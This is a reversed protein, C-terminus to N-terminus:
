AAPAALRAVPRRGAPLRVPVDRLGALVALYEERRVLVAGLSALHETDQQVDVVRGGAATFRECLEVLAVKSADTSRHFMSEGCFVAGVLVGYLGGVLADGNWVEVSHAVGARHLAGYGERMRGTIWTGDERDACLRVVDDFAADVTATWGSRRLRQRLSRSVRLAGPLLVARPDPSCWPVLGDSGPLLPVEGRRLLRRASRELAQEYRGTAPWPFVGHRYASLLTPPDLTGGLAVLERPADAVRVAAFPDSTTPPAAHTCRRGPGRASSTVAEV